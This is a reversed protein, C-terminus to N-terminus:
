PKDEQRLWTMDKIEGDPVYVGHGRLPELMQADPKGDAVLKGKDMLLIHDAHALVQQVDHTVLLITTGQRKLALLSSLVKSVNPWDLGSFPEDMMVLKPRMVLVGAIALREQEGGSLTRPAMGLKKDLHLLTAAETLRKTQTEKDLGLNDMGFRIDAEVSTGVQQTAPNQFVLGIQRLREDDKKTFDQGDILISGSKVQYLGKLLKLLVSKGAGNTGCLLTIEGQNLTFSIDSLVPHDKQFSHSLHRVTLASTM